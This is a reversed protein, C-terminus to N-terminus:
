RNSDARERLPLSPCFVRKVAIGFRLRIKLPRLAHDQLGDTLVLGPASGASAVHTRRSPQANSFECGTVSEAEHHPAIRLM